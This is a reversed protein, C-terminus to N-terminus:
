GNGKIIRKIFLLNRKIQYKREKWTTKLKNKGNAIEIERSLGFWDDENILKIINIM